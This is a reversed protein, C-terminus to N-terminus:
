AVQKKRNHRRRGYHRASFVTMLTVVDRALEEEHSRPAPEELIEIKTDFADCVKFILESGFRLLRDKHTITLSEVQGNIIMQLLKNLGKKKFNIGSGLDSIVEFKSHSTTQLYESLRQSQRQLDMKQDSSSVRAYGLRIRDRKTSRGMFSMLQDLHYRRHGGPTRYSPTLVDSADWRRLTSISVGLLLAAEGVSVCAMIVETM